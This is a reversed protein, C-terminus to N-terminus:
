NHDLYEPNAAHHVRHHSPTTLAYELRGLRPIWETRLWFRDLLNWHPPSPL